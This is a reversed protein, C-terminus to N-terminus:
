ANARALGRVSSRVLVDIMPRVDQPRVPGLGGVNGLYVMGHVSSWLAKAMVPIESEKIQGSEQLVAELVGFLAAIDAEIAPPAEVTRREFMASWANHHESAFSLYADALCLLREETSTSECTTLAGTLAGRLLRMTVANAELRLLELSDFHTYVSGVATGVREAVSRASLAAAGGENLIEVAANILAQRDAM